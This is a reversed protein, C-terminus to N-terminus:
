DSEGLCLGPLMHWGVTEMVTRLQPSMRDLVLPGHGARRKAVDAFINLAGLDIFGLGSLDLHIENGNVSRTLQALEEDLVSHRSADLEGILALGTPKFTRVIRLVSDEFAPNPVAQVSHAGRLAELDGPRMRRGDLQCVAIVCTSPSITAEIHRENELLEPLGGPLRLAWTMDATVRIDRFGTEEARKIERALAEMAARPGFRGARRVDQLSVVTLGEPHLGLLGPIPTNATDALCIVKDGAALGDGVFAGIVHRQEEDCNYVLLSHDGPRLERVPRRVSM